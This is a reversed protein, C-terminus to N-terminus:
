VRTRGQFYNFFINVTFSVLLLVMGLAISLVFEGKDYELAMTTTM